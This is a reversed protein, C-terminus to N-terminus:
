QPRKRLYIVLLVALVAVFALGGVGIGTAYGSLVSAIPSTTQEEGAPQETSVEARQEEGTVVAQVVPAVYSTSGAEVTLGSVYDAYTVEVEYDGPELGGGAFGFSTDGPIMPQPDSWATGARRYRATASGSGDADGTFAAAVDLEREGGTATVVGPTLARAQMEEVTLFPAEALPKWPSSSVDVEGWVWASVHGADLEPLPWLNMDGWGSGDESMPFYIWFFCDEGEVFTCQCWCEADTGRCGEEEIKCVADGGYASEFTLGSQELVTLRDVPTELELYRTLITGDALQVLVGVGRPETQASMPSAAMLMTALLVVLALVLLRHRAIYRLM